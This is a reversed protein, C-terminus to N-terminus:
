RLRTQVQYFQVVDFVQNRGTLLSKVDAFDFVLEGTPYPGTIKIYHDLQVVFM